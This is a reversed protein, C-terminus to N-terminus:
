VVIELKKQRRTQHREDNHTDDCEPKPQAQAFLSRGTLLVARPNLTGELRRPLNDSTGLWVQDQLRALTAAREFLTEIPVQEDRSALLHAMIQGFRLIDDAKM